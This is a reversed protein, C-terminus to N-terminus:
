LLQLWSAASGGRGWVEPACFLPTGVATMAVASGDSIGDGEGGKFRSTGFDSIKATLFETVLVNMPKLDRHVVCIRKRKGLEDVSERGHLYAMGRAVDSALRLLPDVWTLAGSRAREGRLLGDLDGRPVWELVLCLATGGGWCAGVFNVINIHRLSATLLIEAKFAEVSAETVSRLAKVAVPGVGACRGEFVDGFAGSGVKKVLVLDSAQLLCAELTAAAIHGDSRRDSDVSASEVRAAVHRVFQTLELGGGGSISSSAASKSSQLLGMVRDVMAAEGPSLACRWGAPEREKRQHRVAAFSIAAALVGANVVVLCVGVLLPDTASGLLEADIALASGFTVLVAHQAGYALLNTSRRLFPEMERYAVLSVIAFVIILAARKSQSASVLPLLSIFSIRRYMELPEFWFCRPEYCDFLFALYALGDDNKRQALAEAHSLGPMAAASGHNDAGELVVRRGIVSAGGDGGSKKGRLKKTLRGLVGVGDKGGEGNGVGDKRRAMRRSHAEPDLRRRKRWLLVFWSLPVALYATIFLGDMVVFARFAADDCSTATDIRLFSGSSGLSVCELSMCLKQLVPPLVLYTLLVWFGLHQRNLHKRTTGAPLLWRRVAYMFFNAAALAAPTAAWIFCTKAVRQKAEPFLCEAALFDFSFLSLLGLFGNFPAPFPVDLNWRVSHIIQYNSWIVKFVGRDLQRLVGVLWTSQVREWARRACRGTFAGTFAMSQLVSSRRGGSHDAAAGAAGVFLAGAALVLGVGLVQAFFTGVEAKASCPECVLTSSSFFHVAACSGCLPGGSGELCQLRANKACGVVLGSGSAGSAFAARSWCEDDSDLRRGNAGDAHNSARSDELAGLCTSRLCPHPVAVRDVGGSRDAWFGPKPRPVQEGGYCVANAPCPLLTPGIATSGADGAWYYGFAAEECADAGSSSDYGGPCGLCLLSGSGPAYTGAPCDLCMLAGSAVSRLQGGFTSAGNADTAFTGAACNTCSGQGATASASGPGCPACVEAESGAAATAASAKGPPCAPCRCNAFCQPAGTVAACGGYEGAACNSECTAGDVAAPGAFTGQLTLDTASFTGSFIYAASGGESGAEDSMATNHEIRGGQFTASSDSNLFVGGGVRVATNNAVTANNADVSGGKDIFAGAGSAVLQYCVRFGGRVVVADSTFTVTDGASVTFEDPGLDGSFASAGITLVDYEDETEFSQASLTGATDALLECDEGLGYAAPYNPSAFCGAADTTCNGRIVTFANKAVAAGVEGALNGAVSPGRLVASGGFIFLGGGSGRLAVNGVVAVDVGTFEARSTGDLWVGGGSKGCTNWGVISGGTAELTSASSLIVGGGNGDAGASNGTVASRVLTVTSYKYLALGGGSGSAANGAVESDELSLTAKEVYLGGGDRAGATCNRVSVRVLHATAHSVWMGGGYGAIFGNRVTLDTLTVESSDGIYLVRVQSSRHTHPTESCCPAKALPM